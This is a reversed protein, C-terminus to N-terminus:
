GNMWENVGVVWAILGVLGFWGLWSILWCLVESVCASVWGVLWGM